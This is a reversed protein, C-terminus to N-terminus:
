KKRNVARRDGIFRIDWRLERPAELDVARRKVLGHGLNLRLTWRREGISHIQYLSGRHTSTGNARRHIEVRVRVPSHGVFGSSGNTSFVFFIVGGICLRSRPETMRSATAFDRCGPEVAFSAVVSLRRPNGAQGAPLVSYM